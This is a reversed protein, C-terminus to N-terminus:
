EPPQTPSLPSALPPPILRFPVVYDAISADLADQTFASFRNVATLLDDALIHLAARTGKDGVTEALERAQHRIADAAIALQRCQQPIRWTVPGVFPTQNEENAM